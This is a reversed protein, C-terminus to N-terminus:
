PDKEVKAALHSRLWELHKIQHALHVAHLSGRESAELSAQMSQLMLNLSRDYSPSTFHYPCAFCLAPSSQTQHLQGERRCNGLSSRRPSSHCQGFPMPITDHGADNLQKAVAHVAAEPATASAVVRRYLAKALKTFGGAGAGDSLSMRVANEIKEFSAQKLEDVPFGRSRHEDTAPLSLGPFFAGTDSTVYHITNAVTAHRLHQQLSLLDSNEYRYYYLLAFFRRFSHSRVEDISCNSGALEFFSSLSRTRTKSAPPSFHLQKGEPISAGNRRGMLFISEPKLTGDRQDSLCMKLASLAKYSRVTLMNVYFQERRFRTKEIYFAMKALGLQEDVMELSDTRLGTVAHCVEGSRRGNMSCIIVFAAGQVAAVIQDVCLDNPRRKYRGGWVWRVIPRRLIAELRERATSIRLVSQSTQLYRPRDTNLGPEALLDLLPPLAEDILFTAYRLMSGADNVSIQKTKASGRSALRRALKSSNRTIRSSPKDCEEHANQWQNIFTITNRLVLQSPPLMTDIYTSWRATYLQPVTTEILKRIDSPVPITGGWSLRPRWYDQRIADIRRVIGDSQFHFAKELDADTYRELANLWRERINLAHPWGLEAFQAIM